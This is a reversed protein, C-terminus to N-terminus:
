EPVHLQWISHRIMGVGMLVPQPFKLLVQPHKGNKKALQAQDIVFAVLVASPQVRNGWLLQYGKHLVVAGFVLVARAPLAVEGTLLASFDQFDVLLQLLLVLLQLLDHVLQPVEDPLDVGHQGNAASGHM